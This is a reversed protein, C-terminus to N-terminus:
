PGFTPFAATPVTYGSDSNYRAVGRTVRIDDMRRNPFDNDFFIQGGPLAGIRLFDDAANTVAALASSNGTIKTGVMAGDQYLRFTTTAREFVVHSWANNPTSSAAVINLPTSVPANFDVRLNGSADFDLHWAQQTSASRWHCLLTVATANERYVWAEITFDSTGMDWNDTSVGNFTHTGPAGAPQHVGQAFKGSATTAVLTSTFTFGSGASNAIVSTEFNLLALVSAFHPDPIAGGSGFSQYPNVLVGM